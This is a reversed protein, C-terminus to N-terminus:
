FKKFSNKGMVIADIHNNFDSYGYDSQEPNPIMTLWDIGGNITAIFGDLSTAIYM